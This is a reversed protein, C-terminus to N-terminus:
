NAFEEMDLYKELIILISSIINILGVLLHLHSDDLQQNQTHDDVYDNAISLFQIVPVLFIINPVM